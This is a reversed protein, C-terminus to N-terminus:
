LAYRLEMFAGNAPRSVGYQTLRPGGYLNAGASVRLRDSIDYTLLPRLYHDGRPFNTIGFIEFRLTDNLWQDSVRFTMGTTTRQEQGLILANLNGVSQATPTSLEAPDRYQPMWRVLLQVNVNLNDLFTRDLGSVWFVRPLTANPDLGGHKSPDFYALESRFGFRDFNQAYDAGVVDVRDYYLDLTSGTADVTPLLSFGHYYSVSWDFEDGAQDLKVGIETNRLSHAPQQTEISQGAAPLAFQDPEFFPSVFLTLALSQSLYTDLRAAWTGFRQDEDFPLLVRYNRPTLNDTPNIGDARGWAVIQKGIRLDADAIHLTTYAELVEGKPGYGPRDRLDPVELRGEFKADALESFRPLAKLQLTTGFLKSQDDLENSSQFYDVRAWATVPTGALLRDVSSDSSAPESSGSQAQTTSLRLVAIVVAAWRATSRSM